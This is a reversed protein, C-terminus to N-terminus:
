GRGYKKRWVGIRENRLYSKELKIALRIETSWTLWPEMFHLPVKSEIVSFACLFYLMMLGSSLKSALGELHKAVADAKEPPGSLVLLLSIFAIGCALGVLPQWWTARAIDWGTLSSVDDKNGVAALAITRVLIQVTVSAAINVIHSVYSFMIAVLFIARTRWSGRPVSPALVGHGSDHLLSEREQKELDVQAADIENKSEDDAVPTDNYEQKTPKNATGQAIVKSARAAM